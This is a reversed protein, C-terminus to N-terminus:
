SGEQKPGAVQPRGILAERTETNAIRSDPLTEYMVAAVMVGSLFTLVQSLIVKVNSAHVIM